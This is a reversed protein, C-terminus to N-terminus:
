EAVGFCACGRHLPPHGINGSVKLDGSEDGSHLQQGADVFNTHLSSTRGNMQDCFKCGGGTWRMMTRDAAIYTQKATANDARVTEYGAVEGPRNDLMDVFLADLAAYKAANMDEDGATDSRTGAKALAGRIDDRSFAAHRNAYTEAYASAFRDLDPVDIGTEDAAAGSIARVYSRVPAGMAEAVFAQHTGGDQYFSELWSEFDEGSARKFAKGAADMVDRRERKLIRTAADAFLPAFSARLRTRQTVSARQAETLGDASRQEAPTRAANNDSGKSPDNSAPGKATTPPAGPEGGQGGTPEPDPEDIKSADEMNIPVMYHDGDPGIPNLGEERRVDNASLWGNQRGASYYATRSALSAKLLKGLMFEVFYDRDSPRNLVDRKLSLEFRRTWPMVMNRVDEATADEASLRSPHREDNLLRGSVRFIRSIQETNFQRTQLFQAQDPSLGVQQWTIGEELLMMKHANDLGRHATNIANILRNYARDSLSGPHTFVGGPRADNAFFRGAYKEAAVAGGIAEAQLQIPAYGLLGDTSLAKVHWIENESFRVPTGAYPTYIFELDGGPLMQGEEGLKRYVWVRDPRLPWIELVKGSNARVVHAYANGRLLVHGVMAEIVEVATMEPNPLEFLLSWLPHTTAPKKGLMEGSEDRMRQFVQIPLMGIYETIIKVCAYVDPHSLGAEPSILIGSSTEISGFAKLLEKGTIPTNPSEISARSEIGLSALRAAVMPASAASLEQATRFAM